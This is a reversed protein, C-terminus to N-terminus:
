FGALWDEYECARLWLEVLPNPAKSEPGAMGIVDGGALLESIFSRNSKAAGAVLVVANFGTVDGGDETKLRVFACGAGM